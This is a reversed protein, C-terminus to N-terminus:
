RLSQRRICSVVSSTRAEHCAASALRSVAAGGASPATPAPVPILQRPKLPPMPVADRTVGSPWVTATSSSVLKPVRSWSTTSPTGHPRRSGGAGPGAVGAPEQM